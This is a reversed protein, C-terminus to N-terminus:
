PPRWGSAASSGASQSSKLRDALMEVAAELPTRSVVEDFQEGPIVVLADFSAELKPDGAPFTGNRYLLARAAAQRAVRGLRHAHTKGWM